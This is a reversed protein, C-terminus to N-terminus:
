HVSARGLIFGYVGYIFRGDNDNTADDVEHKLKEIKMDYDYVLNKRFEPDHWIVDIATNVNALTSAIIAREKDYKCVYGRVNEKEAKKVFEKLIEVRNIKLNLQQEIPRFLQFAVVRPFKEKKNQMLINNMFRNKDELAGQALKILPLNKEFFQEKKTVFFIYNFGNRISTMKYAMERTEEDEDYKNRKISRDLWKETKSLYYNNFETLDDIEKSFNKKVVAGNKVMRSLQPTLPHGVLKAFNVKTRWNIFKKVMPHINHVVCVFSFLM